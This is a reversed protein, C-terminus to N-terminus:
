TESFEFWGIPFRCRRGYFVEFPAMGIGSHYSNSYAFEILPLHDVWSGNFNIVFGKAYREILITQEAQGDTQPHFTTNVNVKTGLGKQFLNCIHILFLTGCDLIISVPDGHLKVIEVLYLKAYDVVSYSTRVLLFHAYKTMRDVIVWISDCQNQSRLLGTIFTM